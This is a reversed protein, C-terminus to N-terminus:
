CHVDIHSYKKALNKSAYDLGIVCMTIIDALTM